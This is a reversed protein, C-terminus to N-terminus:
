LKPWHMCFQYAQLQQQVEELSTKTAATSPSYTNSAQKPTSFYIDVELLAAYPLTFQSFLGNNQQAKLIHGLIVKIVGGHTVMLVSATADESPTTQNAHSELLQSLENLVRLEFDALTEGNPPSNKIQWPNRWFADMKKASHQYLEDFTKGDWDGFDMEAFGNLTSMVLKNEVATKNSWLACRQLPSSVIEAPLQPIASFAKDMQAQGVQTLLVDVQGRLINGGECQGHRLMWLKLQKM